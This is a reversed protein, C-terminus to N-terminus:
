VKRHEEFQAAGDAFRGAYYLAIGRQWNHPAADKDLANVRDFDRVSEAVRGLLCLAEARRQLAQVHDPDKELITQCRRLVSELAATREPSQPGAPQTTPTAAHITNLASLLLGCLLLIRM